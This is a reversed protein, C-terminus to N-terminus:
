ETLYGILLDKTMQEGFLQAAQFAAEQAQRNTYLIWYNGSGATKRSVHTATPLAKWFQEM